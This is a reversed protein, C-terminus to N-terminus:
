RLMFIFELHSFTLFISKLIKISGINQKEPSPFLKKLLVDLINIM